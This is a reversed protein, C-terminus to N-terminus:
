DMLEDYIIEFKTHTKKFANLVNPDFHNPMVRGDGLTIIDYAEEHSFGKKYPRKSRLADYIDALFVIRASIPIEEGKKRDPYGTGDYREHHNRAVEAAMKLNKSNGIIKEGFITHQKIIEFEEDTLKGAKTLIAKDVYIKGVDHMQAANEIKYIFEEDMGMEYSLLKSFSNVRKIHLGTVDDNAEAARALADMTYNFSEELETVQMRITTVMDVNIGIAKIIDIDKNTVNESFNMGIFNLNEISYGAFNNLNTTYSKLAHPFIRGNFSIDSLEIENCNKSFGNEGNVDFKFADSIDFFLTNKEYYSNLSLEFQIAFYKEEGKIFVWFQEPKNTLFINKAYVTNILEHIIFINDDRRKGIPQKLLNNITGNLLDMADYSEALSCYSTRFITAQKILWKLCENIKNSPLFMENGYDVYESSTGSHLYIVPIYEISLITRIFDIIQLGYSDIDAIIVIPRTNMMEKIIDSKNVSQIIYEGTVAIRIEEGYEENLTLLFAANTM